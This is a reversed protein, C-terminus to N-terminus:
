CVRTLSDKRGIFKYDKQSLERNHVQTCCVGATEPNRMGKDQGDIHLWGLLTVWERAFGMRATVRVTTTFKWKSSM